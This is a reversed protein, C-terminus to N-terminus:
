GRIRSGPPDDWALAEQLSIRCLMMHAQSAWNEGRAMCGRLVLNSLLPAAAALHPVQTPKDTITLGAHATTALASSTIPQAWQRGPRQQLSSVLSEVLQPAVVPWPLDLWYGVEEQLQVENCGELQVQLPLYVLAPVSIFGSAVKLTRWSLSGAPANITQTLDTCQM